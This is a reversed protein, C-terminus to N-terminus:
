RSYDNIIIIIIIIDNQLSRFITVQMTGLELARRTLMGPGEVEWGM